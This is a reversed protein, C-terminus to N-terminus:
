VKVVLLNSLDRENKTLFDQQNKKGKHLSLFINTKVSSLVLHYPFNQQTM